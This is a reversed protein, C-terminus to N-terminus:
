RTSRKESELILIMSNRRFDHALARCPLSMGVMNALRKATSVLNLKALVQDEPLNLEELRTEVATM